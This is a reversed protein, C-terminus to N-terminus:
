SRVKNRLAFVLRDTIICVALRILLPLVRQFPPLVLAVLLAPFTPRYPRYKPGNEELSECVDLVGVEEVVSFSSSPVFPLQSELPVGLLGRSWLMAHVSVFIGNEVKQMPFYSVRGAVDTQINCSRHDFVTSGYCAKTLGSGWDPAM